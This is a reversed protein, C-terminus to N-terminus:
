RNPVGKESISMGTVATGSPGTARSAEWDTGGLMDYRWAGAGAGAGGARVCDRVEARLGENGAMGRTSSFIEM